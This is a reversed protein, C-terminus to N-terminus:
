NKKVDTPRDACAIAVENILRDLERARWRKQRRWDIVVLVTWFVAAVLFPFAVGLAFLPIHITM